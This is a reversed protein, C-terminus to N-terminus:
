MVSTFCRCRIESVKRAWLQMYANEDQKTGDRKRLWLLDESEGGPQGEGLTGVTAEWELDKDDDAGVLFVVNWVTWHDGSFELGVLLMLVLDDITFVVLLVALGAVILGLLSDVVTSVLGEVNKRVVLAVSNVSVLTLKVM